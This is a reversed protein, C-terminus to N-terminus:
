EPVWKGIVVGCITARANIEMIRPTWEPNLARLFKRGDEIVLQKFTAEKENELRVVVNKGHDAAADPDVFIIDGDEYKPRMSVGRVKLAFTQKGHRRPCIMWEEADGAAFNDVMEGWAGAQVWSILPVDMARPLDILQVNADSAQKPGKGEGLWASRVGLKAAAKVLNMGDLNKTAGSRWQYVAQVKVGCAAALEKADVRADQM